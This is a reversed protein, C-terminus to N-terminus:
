LLCLTVYYMYLNWIEKYCSKCVLVTTDTPLIFVQLGKPFTLFFFFVIKFYSQYISLYNNNLVWDVAFTM